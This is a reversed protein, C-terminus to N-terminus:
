KRESTAINFILFPFKQSRNDNVTFKIMSNRLWIEPIKIFLINSPESIFGIKVSHIKVDINIWKITEYFLEAFKYTSFFGDITKVTITESYVGEYDNNEFKQTFYQQKTFHVEKILSCNIADLLEDSINIELEGLTFKLFIQESIQSNFNLPAQAQIIM